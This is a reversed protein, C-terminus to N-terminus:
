GASRRKEKRIESAVAVAGTEGAMSNSAKANPASSLSAVGLSL